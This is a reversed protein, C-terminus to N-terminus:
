IISLYWLLMTFPFHKFTSTASVSYQWSYIYYIPHINMCFFLEVNMLLRFIDKYRTHMEHLNYWLNAWVIQVACDRNSTSILQRRGMLTTQNKPNARVYEWLITSWYQRLCSFFVFLLLYRKTATNGHVPSVFTVHAFCCCWYRHCCIHHRHRHVVPM